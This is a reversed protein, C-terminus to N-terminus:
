LSVQMGLTFQWDSAENGYTKSSRTYERKGIWDLETWVSMDIWSVFRPIEYTGSLSVVLSETIVDGSPTKGAYNPVGTNNAPNGNEAVHHPMFMDMVGHRMGMVSLAVEGYNPMRYAIDWQLVQADGGYPFGIYDFHLVYSYDITFYKRYMLFDVKDRRYLCPTTYAYEFSTSLVGPGFAHSYEAGGLIGWADSQDPAENPARAQDLVFQGYLNLGQYVMIDLEAHAIANFMSRNNLNHFIFSPNLFTFDTTPAQYMVNESVALTLWDWPRFELRHAMLMRISDTPNEGNSPNTDFFINLWDYKFHDTFASFRFFDHYDVHNDIVMNGIHSNGWDVRDRALEVNWHQGGLSFVARKPWEFDFDRSAAPINWSFDKSYVASHTVYWTSEKDIDKPVIAGVGTWDPLNELRVFTDNPNTRGMGYQLDAYTYFFDMVGFDLKAKLFPKREEFGYVWDTDKIFQRRNSQAYMEVNTDLHLGMGFGDSFQWRLGPEVEQAIRHYLTKSVGRLANIDVRALILEAEGKSWPRANSPTGIGMIAYLDDMDQYVSSSLPIMESYPGAAILMGFSIVFLLITLLLKKM